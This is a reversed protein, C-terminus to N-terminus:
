RDYDHKGLQLFRAYNCLLLANKPDTRIAKQYHLNTRDFCPYDDPEILVKIQSVFTRKTEHDLVQTGLQLEDASEELFSEWRQSTTARVEETENGSIDSSDKTSSPNVISSLSSPNVAKEESFIARNQMDKNFHPDGDAGGAIASNRGGSGGGGLGDELNLFGEDVSTDSSLPPQNSLTSPIEASLKGLTEKLSSSVQSNEVVSVVSPPSDLSPVAALAVNNGMSYVTFNALLIMVSVMLSPTCSFVQQFLWIFSAHMEKQVSNLMQQIDGYTFLQRMQLAHSQLERIMFVMSSFAKKVSCLATEGVESMNNQFGQGSLGVEKSHKRKLMRLSLPLGVREIKKELSVPLMSSSNIRQEEWGPEPWSFNGIDPKASPFPRFSLALDHQKKQTGIGNEANRDLGGLGNRGPVEYVKASTEASEADNGVDRGYEEGAADAAGTSCARKLDREPKRCEQFSRLKYLQGRRGGSLFSSGFGGASNPGLANCLKQSASFSNRKRSDYPVNGTGFRQSLGSHSVLPSLHLCNSIEM